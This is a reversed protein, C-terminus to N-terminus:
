PGIEENRYIWGVLRVPQSRRGSACLWDIRLSIRKTDQDESVVEIRLKGDPLSRQCEESLGLSAVQESGIENWRRSALNEMLNGAETRAVVEQRVLRRQQTVMGLLQALGALLAMALAVAM